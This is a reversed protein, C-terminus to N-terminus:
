TKRRRQNIQTKEVLLLMFCTFGQRTHVNHYPQTEKLKRVPDGDLAPKHVSVVTFKKLQNRKELLQHFQDTNKKRDRKSVTFLSTGTHTRARARAHQKECLQMHGGGGGLPCFKFQGHMPLLPTIVKWKRGFATFLDVYQTVINLLVTKTAVTAQRVTKKGAGSLIFIDSRVNAFSKTQM